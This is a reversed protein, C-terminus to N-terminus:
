REEITVNLLLDGPPLIEGFQPDRPSLAELVDMGEIVQGFITFKGDYAPLPAYTIFFQSGNTEGGVNKMAVVGPRDFALSPDVENKFFYGPNGQGTESPDGSEAFIGPLVRHFTIGNFWGENALFVFSNVAIPAQQPYFQITIEGKETELIALYEKEPDIVLPPCATFQREGLAYLAVIEDLTYFDILGEHIRGNILLFPTFPIGIEDGFVFADRVQAVIEDRAMDEALKEADMGLASAAEALWVAFDEGDLSSWEDQKEFLLDHMEWYKGQLNAAHAARAAHGAKEHGPNTVMPFDRYVIRLDDPYKERLENLVRAFKASAPDQFDAYIVFTTAADAPGRTMDEASIPPFLSEGEALPTPLTEISGCTPEAPTPTATPINQTPPPSLTATPTSSPACAVLSLLLILFLTNRLVHQTIEKKMTLKVLNRARGEGQGESREPRGEGM